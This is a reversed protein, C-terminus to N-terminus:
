TSSGSPPPPMTTTVEDEDRMLTAELEELHITGDELNDNEPLNDWIKYMPDEYARDYYQSLLRLNYHV